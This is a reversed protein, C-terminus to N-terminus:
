NNPLFYKKRHTIPMVATYDDLILADWNPSVVDLFWSYAYVLSNSARTICADWKYKDIETHKLYTILKLTSCYYM